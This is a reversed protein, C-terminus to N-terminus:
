YQDFINKKLKTWRASKNIYNKMNYSYFIVEQQNFVQSLFSITQRDDDDDDDYIYLYYIRVRM